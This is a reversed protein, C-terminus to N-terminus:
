RVRPRRAAEGELWERLQDAIRRPLGGRQGAAPGHLTGPLDHRVAASRARPRSVRRGQLCGAISVDHQAHEFRRREMGLRRHSRSRHVLYKAALADIAATQDKASLEGVTGYIVKRWAAGKPAPTGRNDFSAVVYGEDALARHFLGRNGGWRDVVTQGAPEGYVYVIVPYKRAPDFSRPKIISGDLLVGGGIDVTVFETPSSVLTQTRTVADANDALARIRRHDPLSVLEVRPPVDARSTTHFAWRGDPSIQYSHTGRQDAPTVREVQGNGDLKARYLFREIASGPSALFYVWGNREDVATVDIVDGDFKTLLREASGDLAVRYLHRWGDKESLWTAATGNAVEVVDDVVDVWAQNTDRVVRRVEGTPTDASLLDNTNQLRNLQQMLLRRGDSTWQLKALYTNRPDGPTNMWRTTGGGADVVGIRVASNGTGAKPYPFRLVAPYTADTDNVLTFREVGATDFQWYAISKGDPSWRFGDRIGLEEENM